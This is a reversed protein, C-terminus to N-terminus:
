ALTGKDAFLEHKRNLQPVAGQGSAVVANVAKVLAQALEFLTQLSSVHSVLFM